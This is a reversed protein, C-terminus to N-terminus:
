WAGSAVRAAEQGSRGTRRVRVPSFTGTLTGRERCRAGVASGRVVGITLLGTVGGVPFSRMPWIAVGVLRCSGPPRSPGVTVLLLLLGHDEVDVPRSVLGTEAILLAPRAHLHKALGPRDVGRHLRVDHAGLEAPLELVASHVHELVEVAV